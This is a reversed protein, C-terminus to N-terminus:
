QAAPGVWRRSRRLARDPRALSRFLDHSVFIPNTEDFRM